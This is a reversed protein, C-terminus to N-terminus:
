TKSDASDTNDAASKPVSSKYAFITDSLISDTLQQKARKDSEIREHELQQQQKITDINQIRELKIKKMWQLQDTKYTEPTVTLNNMQEQLRYLQQKYKQVSDSLKDSPPQPLTTANSQQVLENMLQPDFKLVSRKPPIPLLNFQAFLRNVTNSVQVGQSLWYKCRDINLRVVKNGNIDVLPNYTGLQELYKGDRPSRSDCVRIRYYPKNTHGFRALRIRVVM